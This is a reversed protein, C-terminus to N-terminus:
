QGHRFPRSIQGVQVVSGAMDRHIKTDRLAIEVIKRRESDLPLHMDRLYEDVPKNGPGYLPKLM